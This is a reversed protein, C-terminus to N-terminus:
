SIESNATYQVKSLVFPLNQSLSMKQKVFVDSNLVKWMNIKKMDFHDILTKKIQKYTYTEPEKPSALFKLVNNLEPDM